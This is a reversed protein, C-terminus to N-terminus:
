ITRQKQLKDTENREAQVLKDMALPELEDYGQYISWIQKFQDITIAHDGIPQVVKVGPMGYAYLKHTINVFVWPCCDYHGKHWGLKFDNERLWCLFPADISTLSPDKVLFAEPAVQSIIIDPM